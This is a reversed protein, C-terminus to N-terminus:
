RLMQTAHTRQIRDLEFVVRVLQMYAPDVNQERANVYAEHASAVQAYLEPDKQESAQTSFFELIFPEVCSGIRIAHWQDNAGWYTVGSVERWFNAFLRMKAEDQFCSRPVVMCPRGSLDTVFVAEVEVSRSVSLQWTIDLSESSETDRFNSNGSNMYMAPVEWCVVTGPTIGDVMQVAAMLSAEHPLVRKDLKGDRFGNSVLLRVITSENM